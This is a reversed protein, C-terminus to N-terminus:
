EVCTDEGQGVMVGVPAVSEATRTQESNTLIVFDGCWASLVFDMVSKIEYNKKLLELLTIIQEERVSLM